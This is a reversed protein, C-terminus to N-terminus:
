CFQGRFTGNFDPPATPFPPPDLPVQVDPTVSICRIEQLMADALEDQFGVPLFTHNTFPRDLSRLTDVVGKIDTEIKDGDENLKSHRNIVMMVEARSIPYTLQRHCTPLAGELAEIIDSSFGLVAGSALSRNVKKLDTIVAKIDTILVGGPSRKSNRNLATLIDGKCIHLNSCNPHCPDADQISRYDYSPAVSTENNHIVVKALSHETM